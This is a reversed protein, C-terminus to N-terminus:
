PMSRVQQRSGGDEEYSGFPNKPSTFFLKPKRKTSSTSAETTELSDEIRFSTRKLITSLGTVFQNTVTASLPPRRSSSSSIKTEVENPDQQGTIIYVFLQFFYVFLVCRALFNLFTWAFYSTLDFLDLKKKEHFQM